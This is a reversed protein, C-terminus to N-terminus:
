EQAWQTIEFIAYEDDPKDAVQVETVNVCGNADIHAKRNEQIYHSEMSQLSQLWKEDINEKSRLDTRLAHIM